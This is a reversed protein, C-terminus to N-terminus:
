LAGIGGSQLTKKLGTSQPYHEPASNHVKINSASHLIISRLAVCDVHDAIQFFVVEGSACAQLITESIVTYLQIFKREQYKM